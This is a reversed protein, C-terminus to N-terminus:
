SAEDRGERAERRLRGLVQGLVKSLRRMDAESTGAFLDGAFHRHDAELEAVVEQGRATLAVLVARRDSPHAGRVVLGAAELGDLLGTVNRPTVRLAESLKRQTVPGSRQLRWIVEARARTLQREAVGLEMQKGLLGVLEFLQDLLEDAVAQVAAPADNHLRKM